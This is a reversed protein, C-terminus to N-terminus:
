ECRGRLACLTETDEICRMVSFPFRTVFDHERCTNIAVRNQTLVTNSSVHSEDLSWITGEIRVQPWHEQNFVTDNM